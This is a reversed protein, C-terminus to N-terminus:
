TEGLAAKIRNDGLGVKKATNVIAQWTDDPLPIGEANRQARM